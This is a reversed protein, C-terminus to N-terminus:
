PRLRIDDYPINKSKLIQKALKKGKISSVQGDQTVLLSKRPKALAYQLAADVKAENIKRQKRRGRFSSPNKASVGELKRLTRRASHARARKHFGATVSDLAVNRITRKKARSTSLKNGAHPAKKTSLGPYADKGNTKANTSLKSAASRDKRVGWRMGKVGFHELFEEVKDTM